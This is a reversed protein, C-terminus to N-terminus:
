RAADYTSEPVDIFVCWVGQLRQGLNKIITEPKGSVLGEKAM